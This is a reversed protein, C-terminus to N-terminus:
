TPHSPTDDSTPHIAPTETTTTQPDTQQLPPASQIPIEPDAAQIQHPVEQQPAAQETGAQAAQPPAPEEEHEDAEEESPDSPTDPESPIDGGSRILLKLHEYCRLRHVLHYFPESAPPPATTTAPTATSSSPGASTTATEDTATFPPPRYGLVLFSRIHPIIKRRDAAPPKEDADEWPVDARRGLQTVLYPFPLTGRVHVPIETEHTSLMVYNSLIQHWLRAEDNLYIRKIGKPMTTDQGMKWPVTPDLAIRAKVADWDFKLFRMDEEAKKYGDPQDSKPPLQYALSPSQPLSAAPPPPPPPHRPPPPLCTPPPPQNPPLPKPLTLPFPPFTQSPPQPHHHAAITSPAAATSPSSSLPSSPLPPLLFPTAHCHNRPPRHPRHHGTTTTPHHNPPSSSSLSSLTERPPARGDKDQDVNTWDPSSYDSNESCHGFLKQSGRFQVQCWNKCRLNFHSVKNFRAYWCQTRTM